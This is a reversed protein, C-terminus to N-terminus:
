NPTILSAQARAEEVLGLQLLCSISRLRVNPVPDQRLIEGYIELAARCDGQSRLLDGLEIRLEVQGSPALAAARRYSDVSEAISGRQFQLEGLAHHAKYSQPVDRATVEWFHYHNRWDGQRTASRVVGLVVLLCAASYLVRRGVRPLGPALAAAFAVLSLSFGASALYLTREALVVGTPILINSVPLLAIASWAIGFAVVPVVVRCTWALALFALVLALGASQVTTWAHAQQIVAPSYDGSLRAPWVLLRLWEPVVQLMTLTRGMMGQGVLADAAVTGALEGLVSARVIVFALCVGSLAAYGPWVRRARERFPADRFLTIESAVLLAPIVVAHEKFFCALLLLVGITTWVRRTPYGRRRADLYRGVILLAILAVWLEAQNVGLAVAEAHVPHAAFLSAAALSAPGPMLRGAVGLFVVAVAASLVYSVVRFVWPAGKGTWWQVAIATTTLPRYLEGELAGQEPWYPTTFAEGLDIGSHVRADEAILPVDDL